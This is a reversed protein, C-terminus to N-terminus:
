SFNVIILILIIQGMGVLLSVAEASLKLIETPPVIEIVSCIKKITADDWESIEGFAKKAPVLFAYKQDANFKVDCLISKSFLFYFCPM